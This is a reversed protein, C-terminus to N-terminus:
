RITGTRPLEYNADYLMSPGYNLSVLKGVSRDEHFTEETSTSNELITYVVVAQYGTFLNYIVM